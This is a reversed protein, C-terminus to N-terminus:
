DTHDLAPEEPEECAEIEIEEESSSEIADPVSGFDNVHGVEDDENVGNDIEGSDDEEKIAELALEVRGSGIVNAKKEPAIQSDRPTGKSEDVALPENKENEPKKATWKMYKHYLLWCTEKIM